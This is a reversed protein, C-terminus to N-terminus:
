VYVRRPLSSAREVGEATMYSVTGAIRLAGTSGALGGMGSGNRSSRRVLYLRRSVVGSGLLGEHHNAQGARPLEQNDNLSYSSRSNAYDARSKRCLM